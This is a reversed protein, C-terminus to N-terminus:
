VPDVAAAADRHLDEDSRCEKEVIEVWWYLTDGEKLGLENRILSHMGTCSNRLPFMRNKVADKVYKSSIALIIIDEEHVEFYKDVPGDCCYQVDNTSMYWAKINYNSFGYMNVSPVRVLEPTRVVTTKCNGTSNREM